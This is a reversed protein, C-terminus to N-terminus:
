DDCCVDEDYYEVDKQYQWLRRKEVEIDHTEELRGCQDFIFVKGHEYYTWQERVVGYENLRRRYATFGYEDYIDLKDGTLNKVFLYHRLNKRERKGTVQPAHYIADAFVPAAILLVLVSMWFGKKM